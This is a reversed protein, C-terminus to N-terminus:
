YVGIEEMVVPIKCAIRDGYKAHLYDEFEHPDASNDAFM